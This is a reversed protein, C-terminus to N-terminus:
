AIPTAPIAVSGSGDTGEGWSTITAGEIRLGVKTVTITYAYKYGAKLETSTEDEVKPNLTASYTMGNIVVNLASERRVDEAFLSIRKKKM